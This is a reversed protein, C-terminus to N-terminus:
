EKYECVTKRDIFRTSIMVTQAPAKENEMRALLLKIAWDGIEQYPLGVSNIAPALMTALTNDYGIISIDKPVRINKEYLCQMVGCAYIDSTTFIATPPNAEEMLAKTAQYGSLISYDPKLQIFEPLIPLGYDNIAKCYGNYRNIEVEHEPYRGIFGIRRHGKELIHTVAVYVGGLDDVLIRDVYPINLAREIMVVPIKIDVLKTILERDIMANSTIIIGEVRQAILEDIQKAEEGHDYHSALTMVHYDHSLAAKDVAASIQEYLMNQSFLTMHGLLKSHSYKLAQAMKNPVYGMDKIIQEIEKRKDEAVYGNNHIVRGVTALSVNAAKAIDIMKVNAM